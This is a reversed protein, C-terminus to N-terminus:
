ANVGVRVIVSGVAVVESEPDLSAVGVVKSSLSGVFVLTIVVIERNWRKMRAESIAM